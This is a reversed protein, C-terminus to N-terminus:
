RQLLTIAVHGDVSYSKTYANVIIEENMLLDAFQLLVNM